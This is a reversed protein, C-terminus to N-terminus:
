AAENGPPLQGATHNNLSAPAETVAGIELQPEVPVRAGAILRVNQRVFKKFGPHEITVRYSGPPLNALVYFGDEDSVAAREFQTQENVVM